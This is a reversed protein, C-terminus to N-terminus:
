ARGGSVAAAGFSPPRAVGAPAPSVEGPSAGNDGAAAEFVNSEEPPLRAQDYESGGGRLAQLGGVESALRLLLAHGQPSWMTRLPPPRLPSGAGGALAAILLRLLGRVALASSLGAEPQSRCENLTRRPPGWAPVLPGRMIALLRGAPAPCPRAGARLVRRARLRRAPEQLPLWYASSLYQGVKWGGPPGAFILRDADLREYPGSAGPLVISATRVPISRCPSDKKRFICVFKEPEKLEACLALGWHGRRM